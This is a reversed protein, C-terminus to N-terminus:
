KVQRRVKLQKWSECLFAILIMRDERTLRADKVVMGLWM